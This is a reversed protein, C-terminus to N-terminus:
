KSVRQGMRLLVDERIGGSSDLIDDIDFEDASEPPLGRELQGQTIQGHRGSEFADMSQKAQDMADVVAQLVQQAETFEANPLLELFAAPAFPRSDNPLAAVARYLADALVPDGTDIALQGFDSLQAKGAQEFIEAYAARCQLGDTVGHGTTSRNLVQIKTWHRTAYETALAKAAVMKQFLPRVELNITDRIKRQQDGVQSQLVRDAASIVRGEVNGIRRVEGTLFPAINAKARDCDAQGRKLIRLIEDLRKSQAAAFDRLAKLSLLPIQPKLSKM